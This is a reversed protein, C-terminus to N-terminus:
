ISYSKYLDFRKYKTKLIRFRMLVVWPMLSYSFDWALRLLFVNNEAHINMVQLGGELKSSYILSWKITIL